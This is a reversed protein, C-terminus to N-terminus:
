SERGFYRRAEPKLWFILLPISFVMFCASTLGLCIIVLDYIWVWPKPPLFFPLLCAIFLAFGLVLFVLGMLVAMTPPMEDRPIVGMLFPISLLLVLLYTFCLLGCYVKFWIIVPPRPASM